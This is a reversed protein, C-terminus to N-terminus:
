KERVEGLVERLEELAIAGIRLVRPPDSAFSVVTSEEGLPAPGSDLLLPVLGQLQSLAEEASRPAAQGSRNASTSALPGGLGRAVLRPVPHAPLRLGLAEQSARVAATAPSRDPLVVTLAGPWFHQMARAAKEPVEALHASVDATERLLLALPLERRRAKV